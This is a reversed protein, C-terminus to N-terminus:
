FGSESPLYVNGGKFNTLDNGANFVNYDVVYDTGGPIQILIAMRINGSVFFGEADVASNSQCVLFDGSETDVAFRVVIKPNTGGGDGDILQMDISNDYGSASLTNSKPENNSGNLGITKQEGADYRRDGDADQYVVMKYTIDNSTTNIMSNVDIGNVKLWTFRGNDGPEKALQFLGDAEPSDKSVQYEVADTTLVVNIPNGSTDYSKFFYGSSEEISTSFSNNVASATRIWQTPTASPTVSTIAKDFAKNGSNYTVTVFEYNSGLNYSTPKGDTPAVSINEPKLMDLNLDFERQLDIIQYRDLSVVKKDAGGGGGGIGGVVKIHQVTRNEIANRFYVDKVATYVYGQKDMAVNVTVMNDCSSSSTDTDWGTIQFGSVYDAMLSWKSDDYNDGSGTKQYMIKANSADYMIFHNNSGSTIKYYRNSGAFGQSYATTADVLLEEIQNAVIQAETQMTVQSNGDKYSDSTSTMMMIIGVMVISFIALTLILEVLSYGSNNVSKKM